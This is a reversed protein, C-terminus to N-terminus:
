FYVKFNYTILIIRIRYGKLNIERLGDILNNTLEKISETAPMRLTLTTIKNIQYFQNNNLVINAISKM